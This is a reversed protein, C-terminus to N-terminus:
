EAERNGRGIDDEYGPDRNNVAVRDMWSWFMIYIDARRKKRIEKLSAQYLKESSKDEDMNDEYGPDRNNSLLRDM